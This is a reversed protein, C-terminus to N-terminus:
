EPEQTDSWGSSDDIPSAPSPLSPSNRLSDLHIPRKNGRRPLFEVGVGAVRLNPALRRLGKTLASPTKPWARQKRTSEKVKENLLELLESATGDWSLREKEMINMLVPAILSSELAIDNSTDRNASYAALFAEPTWGLARAAACGWVAFDAMRPLRGRTVAPLNRIAQVVVDLAAGLIRPLSDEFDRHLEAETRRETEPIHPLYVVVARDLLDGNTAVEDIGNLIVPRQASFIKEDGDTYLARTAFGGGTSLSCLADSLWPSLRSLNDIALVWGNTAAIMLDRADRPEARLPAAAPDVVARLLRATTSKASGQEGHVILIPYPGTSRLTSLFWSAILLWDGDRAPIFRRLEALQGDRAPTPLALMGGPRRFKVPPDSVVRWGSSDIAVAEWRSNGLDIYTIGELDALRTCVRCIIGGARARGELIGLASQVAQANPATHFAEFYRDMIWARFGQAHLAWTERHDRSSVTAYVEGEMSCFLEANDTLELLREGAGKGAGAPYHGISQAVARVESPELPPDCHELNMQQLADGIERASMGARRM